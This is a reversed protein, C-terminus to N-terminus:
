NVNGLLTGKFKGRINALEKNIRRDELERARANRLDSIFTTLGRMTSMNDSSFLSAAGSGGGAKRITTARKLTTSKSRSIIFDFSTPTSSLGRKGGLLSFAISTPRSATLFNCRPLVDRDNIWRLNCVFAYSPNLHIYENGNRNMVGIIGRKNMEFSNKYEDTCM